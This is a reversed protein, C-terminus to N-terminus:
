GDTDDALAFYEHVLTGIDRLGGKVLDPLGDPCANLTEQIPIHFSHAM